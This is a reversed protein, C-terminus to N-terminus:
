QRDHRDHYRDCAPCSGRPKIDRTIHNHEDRESHQYQEILRREHAAVFVGVLVTRAKGDAPHLGLKHLGDDVRAFREDHPMDEVAAGADALAALLREQATGTAQARQHSDLATRLADAHSCAVCAERHLHQDRHRGPPECEWAGALGELIDNLNAPM